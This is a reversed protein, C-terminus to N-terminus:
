AGERSANEHIHQAIGKVTGFVEPTMSDLEVAFGFESEIWVILEVLATSDVLGILNTEPEIVADDSVLDKGIYEKLRREIDTLDAM